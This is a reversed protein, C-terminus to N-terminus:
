WTHEQKLYYQFMLSTSIFSPSLVSHHTGHDREGMIGKERM